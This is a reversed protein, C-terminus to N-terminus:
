ANRVELDLLVESYDKKLVSVIQERYRILLPLQAQMLLPFM